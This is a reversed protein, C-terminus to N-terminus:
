DRHDFQVTRGGTYGAVVDLVGEENEFPPEMCWFCGGAFIARKQQAM